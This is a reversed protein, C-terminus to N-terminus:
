QIKLLWGDSERQGGANEGGWFVVGKGDLCSSAGVFARPGPHVKGETAVQETPLIDVEAWSYAGSEVSSPLVKDRIVDKVAAPNFGHSPVQLAWVDSCFPHQQQQQQTTENANASNPVRGFMYVLYHRGYGTSVAVLSASPGERAKPGPAALPNTPFDITEWKYDHQEQQQQQETAPPVSKNNNPSGPYRLVHIAGSLGSSSNNITYLAGDVFAATSSSSSSPGASPASPLQTWRLADLDFVWTEGGDGGGGHLLLTNPDKADPFVILHDAAAANQSPYPATPDAPALKSWRLTDTDFLWLCGNDQTIPNNDADLGGHIVLHATTNNDQGPSPRAAAAHSHRPAPVLLTNTTTDKLPFAPYCAYSQQQQDADTAKANAKPNPLSIAHIDTTCLTGPKHLGGFIYAKDNITTVTHHSRALALSSDDPSSTAIQSLTAKLPQTPKAISVAAGAELSTSVVQEAVLAGAAIEAM